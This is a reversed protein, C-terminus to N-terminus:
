KEKDFIDEHTTKLEETISNITDKPGIEMDIDRELIEEMGLLIDVRDLSDMGLTSMKNDTLVPQEAIRTIIARLEKRFTDETM